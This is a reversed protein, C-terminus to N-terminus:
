AYRTVSSRRAPRDSDRDKLLTYLGLGGMGLLLADSTSLDGGGALLGGSGEGMLRGAVRGGAAIGAGYNVKIQADLFREQLFDRRDQLVQMRHWLDGIADKNYKSGAPLAAGAHNLYYTFTERCANLEDVVDRAEDLDRQMDGSAMFSQVAQFGDAFTGISGAGNGGRQMGGGMRTALQQATQGYGRPVYGIRGDPFRVQDFEGSGDGTMMEDPM